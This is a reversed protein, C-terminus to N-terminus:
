VVIDESQVEDCTISSQVPVGGLLKLVMMVALPQVSAPISAM